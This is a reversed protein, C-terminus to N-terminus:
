IFYGPAIPYGWDITYFYFLKDINTLEYEQRKILHAFDRKEMMKPIDL